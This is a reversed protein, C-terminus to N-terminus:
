QANTAVGGGRSNRLTGSRGGCFRRTPLRDRYSLKYRFYWRL